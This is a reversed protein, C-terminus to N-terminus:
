QIIHWATHHNHVTLHPQEVDHLSNFYLHLAYAVAVLEAEDGAPVPQATTTQPAAPAEAVVAKAKPQMIWGMLQMVFVFCILLLLVIGFGLFTVTWTQSTVALLTM